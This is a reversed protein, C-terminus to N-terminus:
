LKVVKYSNPLMRVFEIFLEEDRTELCRIRLAELMKVTQLWQEKISGFEMDIYLDTFESMDFCNVRNIPTNVILDKEEQTFERMGVREKKAKNYGFEAGQQFAEQITVNEVSKAYEAGNERKAVEYHSHSLKYEEAEKEFM